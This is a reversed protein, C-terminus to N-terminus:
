FTSLFCWFSMGWPKPTKKDWEFLGIGLYTLIIQLIQFAPLQRPVLQPTPSTVVTPIFCALGFFAVATAITLKSLCPMSDFTSAIPELVFPIGARKTGIYGCLIERKYPTSHLDITM